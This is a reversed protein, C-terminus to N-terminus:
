TSCPSCSRTRLSGCIVGKEFGVPATFPQAVVLKGDVITLPLAPLAGRRRATSSARATERISSRSIARVRCCAPRRRALRRRRLRHAHLDRHLRRRRRRRARADGPEADRPDLRLLLVRNLRSGSRVTRDQPDMAWAMRRRRAPRCDDPTLPKAGPADIKILFDGEKPRVATADVQAGFAPGKVLLLAAGGKLVARRGVGSKAM